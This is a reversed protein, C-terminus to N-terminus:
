RKHMNLQHNTSFMKACEECQFERSKHLRLVHRRMNSLDNFLIACHPCVFSNSDSSLGALPDSVISPEVPINLGGVSGDNSFEVFEQQLNDMGLADGDPRGNALFCVFERINDMAEKFEDQPVHQDEPDIGVIYDDCSDDSVDEDSSVKGECADSHDGEEDNNDCGFM